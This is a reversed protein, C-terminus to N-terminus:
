TILRFNFGEGRFEDDLFIDTNIGYVFAEDTKSSLTPSLVAAVLGNM